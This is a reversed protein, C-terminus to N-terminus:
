REHATTAVALRAKLHEIGGGDVGTTAQNEHAAVIDFMEDHDAARGIDDDFAADQRFGFGFGSSLEAWLRDLLTSDSLLTCGDLRAALRRRLGDDGGDCWRHRCAGFGIEFGVAGPM